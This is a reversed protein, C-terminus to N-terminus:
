NEPKLGIKWGNENKELYYLVSLTDKIETYATLHTKDTFVIEDVVANSRSIVVLYLFYDELDLIRYNYGRQKYLDTYEQLKEPNSYYAIYDDTLYTLWTDYDKDAIINNLEAIFGKIDEFTEVYMEETVVFEEPEPETVPEPEAVAEPASEVVPEEVVPEPEPEVTACATLGIIIITILTFLTLNKLM